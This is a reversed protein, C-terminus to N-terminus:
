GRKQTGRAEPTDAEHGTRRSERAFVTECILEESFSHGRRTPSTRCVCLGPGVPLRVEEIRAPLTLTTGAGGDRGVDDFSGLARPGIRFMAVVNDVALGRWWRVPVALAVEASSGSRVGLGPAQFKRRAAPKARVPLPGTRM